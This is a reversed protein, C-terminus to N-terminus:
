PGATLQIAPPFMERWRCASARRTNRRREVRTGCRTSTVVAILDCIMRVSWLNPKVMPSRRVACTALRAELRVFGSLCGRRYASTAPALSLMPWAICGSWSERRTSGTRHRKARWNTTDPCCRRVSARRNPEPSQGREKSSWRKSRIGSRGWRIATRAEGGFGVHQRHDPWVNLRLITLSSVSTSLGQV